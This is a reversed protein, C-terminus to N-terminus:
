KIMIKLNHQVQDQDMVRILYVGTSLSETSIKHEENHADLEHSLILQGGLNRLEFQTFGMANPDSIVLDGNEDQYSFFQEFSQKDLGVNQDTGFVLYLRNKIVGLQNVMFQYDNQTLDVKNGNLSDVLLIVNNADWNNLSDLSITYLGQYWADVGVPLVKATGPQIYPIGQISYEMTDQQSYFSHFQSAKYIPADFLRDFGNTARDDFMVLIQNAASDTSLNLWARERTETKFFGANTNSGSTRMDNQFTFNISGGAFLPDVQVFFGQMSRTDSSPNNRRSNPVNTQGAANWNGYQADGASPTSADCYYVTALIDSHDAAFAAFDLASPYPNGLLVYDSARLNNVTVSVDGNNISGEFTKSDTYDVGTANLTPTAAYGEGANMVGSAYASWNQNAADFEYLDNPNSASFADEIDENSVPSSWMSFRTQNRATFERSVSYTGTGTNADTAKTQLLTAASEIVVTGNNAIDGNVTLVEGASITLTAANEITLDSVAVDASISVSQGTKVTADLGGTSSNPVGTANWAGADYVLATLTDAGPTGGTGYSARWSAGLSNDSNVDILTLSPGDGEAATPWPAGDDYTVADITVSAGSPDYVITIPDSSNTLNNSANTGAVDANNVGLTNTDPTFSNGTNFDGDGGSGVAITYYTGAAFTFDGFDFNNADYTLRWSSNMNIASGSNNYIEIWEDDSGANSSNYMIETIVIDGASPLNAPTASGGSVESSFEDDDNNGTVEKYAYAYVYYTTGTTLNTVTINGDADTTQNAVCYANDNAGADTAFTGSGYALNATYDIGDQGSASLDISNSGDSVFVLVGDWDTGFTGSPKTWSIDITTTGFADISVASPNPVAGPAPRLGQIWTTNAGGNPSGPTGSTSTATTWNSPDSLASSSSSSGTYYTVEGSGPGNIPSSPHSVAMDHVIVNNNDRIVAQDDNDSNGFSGWSGTFYTADNSAITVENDSFDSDPTITGDVDGGNYIAIVTGANLNSWDSSQSFEVFESYSGDDNDGIDWGRLDTGNQTVVIEMWEKSGGSGQSMENVFVAIGASPTADDEVGASWTSGKRAFVKFFYQTGNTLGTITTTTGTGNYVVKGATPFSPNTGDTFDQSNATYTGSPIGSITATHAVVILEDFCSPNTWSIVAESTGGTASLGTVDDPSIDQITQAGSATASGSTNTTGNFSLDTHDLSAVNITNGATADCPFDVTVFFYGTNGNTIIQNFGSFSQSGATTPAAINALESDSGADFSNDTSYWIKLNEVDNATYTGSTTINVGDLDANASSVGLQFSALVNNTSNNDVSAATIQTGNDALTVNPTASIITQTGAASANNTVNGSSFTFSPAQATLTNGANAAANVDAVVWFYGTAGDAINQTLGSFSLAQTTGNGNGTIDSGIQTGAAFSNSAAYFLQFNDIDDSDFTGNISIDVTNLETSNDASAISFASLIQDLSGQAINGAAPQSNDAITVTPVTATSASIDDIRWYSFRNGNTFYLWRIYLSTSGAGDAAGIQISETATEDASVTKTYVDNYNTGDTSTQVKIVYDAGSGSEFYDLDQKWSLDILNSGNTNLPESVISSIGPNDNSFSLEAENASGGANSSNEITFDTFTWGSPVGAASFDQSYPLTSYGTTSETVTPVTATTKFDINAGSNTYPYIIFDYSTSNTLGSINATEVGSGVNLAFNNDTWDSDDSVASGDAVSAYTGAGTKGLILFGDAAEAGDNDSWTLDIQFAGNAAAAFSAVHNSPEPKTSGGGGAPAIGFGDDGGTGSPNNNNTSFRTSPDTFGTTTGTTIGANLEINQNRTSVGNGDWASGPDNGPDGFVDTTVGGYKVVLADDGNFTFNELHFAAGNNTTTTQLDTTGIVLVEGVALTGSSLTFDVSPTAGNTGKEIVLNNTSFDLVSATNNWIEIGKPTSGSNTEIYQSIIQGRLSPSLVLGLLM